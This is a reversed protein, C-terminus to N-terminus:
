QKDSVKLRNGSVEEGAMLDSVIADSIFYGKNTLTVADGSKIMHGSRIYPECGKLFSEQLAKGFVTGTEKLDIGWMTRLSTLLFENFRITDTLEEKEYFPTGDKLAKMYQTLSALNWQRSVINYSHASPGLGLYPKRKWYNTNHRSLFGDKAWNSIEYHVFGMQGLRRILYGFQSLSEEESVPRMLGKAAKKYFVTGPELTLHYASLHQIDLESLRDLSYGLDVLSSGPIGYILDASINSFGLKIAREISQRAEQATHRRNMLSLDRDHFSQIGISLRNVPTNERISKLYEHSLDDPNVELTIECDKDLINGHPILLMIRRLHGADLVSPTGGGFYITEVTEGQLYGARSEIEKELADIYAGADMTGATRYFDCYHCIKRCFPIHIYIGAM